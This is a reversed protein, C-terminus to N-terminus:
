YKAATATLDIFHEAKGDLSSVIHWAKSEPQWIFRQVISAKAHTFVFKLEDGRRQGYGLAESDRGGFVNMLHAVYRKADNDYGIFCFGEYPVDTGSVNEVSKEYVRLFQHHLVWEAELAQKSTKGHVVGAVQWRGVLHDLLDDQFPLSDTKQAVLVPSVLLAIVLLCRRMRFPLSWMTHDRIKGSM